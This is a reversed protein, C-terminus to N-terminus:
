KGPPSSHCDGDMNMLGSLKLITSNAADDDDMFDLTLVKDSESMM